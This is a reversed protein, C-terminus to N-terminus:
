PPYRGGPFSALSPGLRGRLVENANWARRGRETHERPMLQYQCLDTSTIFNALSVLPRKWFRLSEKLHVQGKGWGVPAVYALVGLNPLMTEVQHKRNNIAEQGFEWARHVQKWGFWSFGTQCSVNWSTSSIELYTNAEALALSIRKFDAM